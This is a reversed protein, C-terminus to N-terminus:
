EFNLNNGLVSYMGTNEVFLLALKGTLCEIVTLTDLINRGLRDISSVHVKTILGADIGRLFSRQGKENELVSQEWYKGPM